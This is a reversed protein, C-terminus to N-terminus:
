LPIDRLCVEESAFDGDDQPMALLHQNFAPRDVPEVRSLREFREAAIVVVLPRGDQSIMQPEGAFAADILAELNGQAEQLSWTPSKM